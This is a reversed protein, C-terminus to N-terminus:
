RLGMTKEAKAKVQQARHAGLGFEAKILHLDAHTRGKYEKVFEERRGQIESAVKEPDFEERTKKERMEKASSRLDDALRKKFANALEFYRRLREESPYAFRYRTVRARRDQEPWYGHLYKRYIKDQDQNYQLQMVSATVRRNRDDKKLLEVKYDFMSRLDKDIFGSVPAVVITVLGMYGFTQVLHSMAKNLFNYWNRHYTGVGAEDLIKVRGRRNVDTNIVRLYEEADGIGMDREPDFDPDVDYALKLATTSKRMQTKGVLLININRGTSQVERRILESFPAPLSMNMYGAPTRTM